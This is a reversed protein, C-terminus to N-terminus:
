TNQSSNTKSRKEIIYGRKLLGIITAIATNKDYNQESESLNEYPVIGPHTKEQDNRDNGFIWGENIRGQMWTNHIEKAIDNVAEKIEESLYFEENM